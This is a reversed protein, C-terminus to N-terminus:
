SENNDSVFVYSYPQLVKMLQDHIIKERTDYGNCSNTSFIRKWFCGFVRPKLKSPMSRKKKYEEEFQEARMKMKRIELDEELTMKNPLVSNKHPKINESSYEEEDSDILHAEDKDLVGHGVFFGDNDDEDEKEEDEEVDNEEDSLSEGQEEEEWDDDSDYEYDLYHSDRAFPRRAHITNSKKSWTGWYPPRENEHFQLLKAGM